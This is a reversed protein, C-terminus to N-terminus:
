KSFIKGKSFDRLVSVLQPKEAAQVRESVDEATDSPYVPVKTQWIITGHDYQEDVFHVTVGTEKEKNDVIAQHVHMGHMGKGCYKPILSPHTNIITYKSLLRPGVMRLYGALVILDIDYRGLVEELEADMESGKRSRITYTDIGANKARELAYVDPVDSVVLVINSDLVKSEIADIIAQLTTGSGSAFVVLQKRVTGNM